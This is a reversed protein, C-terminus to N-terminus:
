TFMKYEFSILRYSIKLAGFFGIIDCLISQPSTHNTWWAIYRSYTYIHHKTTNSERQLNNLHLSPYYRCSFWCQYNNSGCRYINISLEFSQYIHYRRSFQGSDITSCGWKNHQCHYNRRIPASLLCTMVYELISGSRPRGKASAERLLISIYNNRIICLLWCQIMNTSPTAM